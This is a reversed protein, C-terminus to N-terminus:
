KVSLILGHKDIKKQYEYQGDLEVVVRYYGDHNGLRVQNFPSSFNNYKRALTRSSGKFDLVIRHPNSLMFHRILKDDTSLKMQNKKTFFSIFPLKVNRVFTSSKAPMKSHSLKIPMHWDVNKDLSTTLQKISGDLNQYEIIVKKIVRASDPLRFTEYQLDNLQTPVNTSIPFADAALVDSFPNERSFLSLTLLCLTIIFKMM